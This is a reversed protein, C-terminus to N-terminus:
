WRGWQGCWCDGDVGSCVRVGLCDSDIGSGVRVGLCDGDIGSGVGVIVM